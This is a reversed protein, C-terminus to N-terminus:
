QVISTCRNAVCTPVIMQGTSTASRGDEAQDQHACGSPLCPRCQHFTTEAADFSARSGTHIGFQVIGCCDEHPALVCDSPMACARDIAAQFSALCAAPDAADISHGHEPCGSIAAIAVIACLAIALRV